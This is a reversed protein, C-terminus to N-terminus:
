HCRGETETVPIYIRHERFYNCHFERQSYLRIYFIDIGVNYDLKEHANIAFHKVAKNHTIIITEIINSRCEFIVLIM